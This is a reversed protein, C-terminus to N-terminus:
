SVEKFFSFPLGDIDKGSIALLSNGNGDAKPCQIVVRRKLKFQPIQLKLKSMLLTSVEECKAHIALSADNHLLTRQLNVIM